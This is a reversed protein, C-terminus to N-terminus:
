GRALRDAGKRALLAGAGGFMLGLMAGALVDTPFHVYLYLRSFAILAAWVAAWKWHRWHSFYLAAAAAFSSSTHGSPFSFDEPEAILLAVDSNLAFPRTRAVFPKLTLNCVLLSLLLACLVAAGYRRTKKRALLVATLAIWVAGASGTYTIAVMLADGVSTRLNAQIWDLFTLEFNSM